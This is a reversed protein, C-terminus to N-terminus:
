QNGLIRPEYNKGYFYGQFHAAVFQTTVVISNNIVRLAIQQGEKIMIGAIAQPASVSGFLYNFNSFDRFAPQGNLFMGFSLQFPVVDQTFAAGGNAAFDMGLATIRGNYGQPVQFTVITAGAGVAPLAVSGYKEFDAFDSTPILWPYLNGDEPRSGVPSDTYPSAYGAGGTRNAPPPM